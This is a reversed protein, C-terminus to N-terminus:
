RTKSAKGGSSSLGWLLLVVLVGVLLADVVQGQTRQKAAIKVAEIMVALEANEPFPLAAKVADTIAVGGPSELISALQIDAFATDQMLDNAVVQAGEQWRYPNLIRWRSLYRQLKAAESPQM